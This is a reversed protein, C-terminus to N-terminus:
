IAYFMEQKGQFEELYTDTEAKVIISHNLYILYVWLLKCKIKKTSNQNIEDRKVAYYFLKINRSLFSVPKNKLNLNLKLNKVTAIVFVHIQLLQLFLILHM